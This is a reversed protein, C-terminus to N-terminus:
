NEASSDFIFQAVHKSSIYKKGGLLKGLKCVCDRPIGTASSLLQIFHKAIQRQVGFKPDVGQVKIGSKHFMSPVLVVASAASQLDSM